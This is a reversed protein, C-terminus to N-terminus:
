PIKLAQVAASDPWIPIGEGSFYQIVPFIYDGEGVVPDPFSEPTYRYCEHMIGETYTLKGSIVEDEAYQMATENTIEGYADYCGNLVKIFYGAWDYAMGATSPGPEYGFKENYNSIFAQGEEGIWAPLQDIVYDSSDGTLDYWEGLWGLGDCIILCDLGVEDAQKIFATVATIDSMTGAILTCGAQKMKNLVPYYDTEGISFWESLAVTWGAAKFQEAIGNGFSRGWDQDVGYIAMTKSSPEWLGNEIASTVTEVYGVTLLSATPWGKGVWYKYKEYDESIKENITEGAGFGFFHPIQYKAAVDMCSVSVWSHWDMFGVDIDNKLICEEYALAAKEADSESDVWHLVAKYDGIMYDYEEFKMEVSNKIEEGSRSATGTLPAICAINLTKASGDGGTQGSSDSGGGCGAALGMILALIVIMAWLRLKKM